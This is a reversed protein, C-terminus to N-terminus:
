QILTNQISYVESVVEKFLPLNFFTIGVIIYGVAAAIACNGGLNYKRKDAM